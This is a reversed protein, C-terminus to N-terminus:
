GKHVLLVKFDQLVQQVKVVKHETLVTQEKRVLLVKIVKIVKTM